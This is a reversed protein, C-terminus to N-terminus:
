LIDQEIWAYFGEGFEGKTVPKGLKQYERATAAVLHRLTTTPPDREAEAIARFAADIVINKINGGGLRFRGALAHLDTDAPRPMGPPFMGQWIRFRAEADPFPFEVLV